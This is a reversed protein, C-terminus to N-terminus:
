RKEIYGNKELKKLWGRLTRVHVGFYEVMEHMDPREFNRDKLYLWLRYERTGLKMIIETGIVPNQDHLPSTKM